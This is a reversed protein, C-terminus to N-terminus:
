PHRLVPPLTRVPTNSNCHLVPPLALCTSVSTKSFRKGTNTISLTVNVLAEGEFRFDSELHQQVTATPLTVHTPSMVSSAFTTYQLGFGFPFLTANGNYFRHTRGNTVTTSANPRLGMDWMSLGGTIYSEKYWTVPARGSPAETGVVVDAIAQGGSQGPYGAWIIATVNANQMLDSVDIVGGSILVVVLPKGNAAATSAAQTILATQTAPLLLSDRDRM